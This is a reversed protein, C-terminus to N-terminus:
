LRKERLTYYLQKTEKVLVEGMLDLRWLGRLFGLLRSDDLQQFFARLERL